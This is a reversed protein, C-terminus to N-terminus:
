AENPRVEVETPYPKIILVKKVTGDQKDFKEEKVIQGRGQFIVEAGIEQEQLLEFQASSFKGTMESVEM